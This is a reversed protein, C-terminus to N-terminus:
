RPTLRAGDSVSDSAYLVVAEGRSLGNLIEAYQDNLHGIEVQRLRARGQEVVFCHWAGDQRFLSSVPVRLVAEAEWLVIAAEVRFGHGLGRWDEEPDMLDIIVNVRQERVGLASVEEFGLPEVLRVRGRLMRDTGDWEAIEVRAGPEIRVADESLMEAVIELGYPDGLDLIPAGAQVVTESEQHVRLVQGSTPAHIELVANVAEDGTLRNLQALAAAVEAERMRVSARATQEQAQATRLAVATRDVVEQAVTGNTYLTRYRTAETEALERQAVAALADARAVDRAAEAAALAAQATRDARVDLLSPDVPVLRALVAEPEVRDGPEREVRLLRGSVPASLTYVERIRSYGEDRVTVVLPGEGIDEIDVPVAQPQLALVFLAILAIIVSGWFVTRFNLKMAV